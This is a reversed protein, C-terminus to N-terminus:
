FVESDHPMLPTGEEDRIPYDLIRRVFIHAADEATVPEPIRVSAKLAAPLYDITRHVALSEEVLALFKLSKTMDVM